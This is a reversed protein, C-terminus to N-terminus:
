NPSPGGPPQYGDPAPRPWFPVLMPVRKRYAGYAEEGLEKTLWSEELRAKMWMGGTLVAAGVLGLITGKAAATAWLATLIGTYIPHRVLGYPGTDVVRHGEKRTVNSSWLKGLHLRAWWCLGFGAAEFAICV